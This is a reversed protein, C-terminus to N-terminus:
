SRLRAHCRAHAAAPSASPGASPAEGPIEGLLSVVEALSKEAALALDLVVPAESARDSLILRDTWEVVTTHDVLGAILGLRLAEADAKLPGIL